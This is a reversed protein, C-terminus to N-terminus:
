GLNIDLIATVLEAKQAPTLANKDKQLPQLLTQRHTLRSVSAQLEEVLIGLDIEAKVSDLFGRMAVIHLLMDAGVQEVSHALDEIGKAIDAMEKTFNQAMRDM